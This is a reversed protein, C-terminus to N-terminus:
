ATIPWLGAAEAARTAAEAMDPKLAQLRTCRSGTGHSFAPMISDPTSMYDVIWDPEHAYRSVGFSFGHWSVWGTVCRADSGLGYELKLDSVKLPQAHAVIRAVARKRTDYGSESLKTGDGAFPVWYPTGEGAGYSVGLATAFLGQRMEKMVHGVNQGDSMVVGERTVKVSGM